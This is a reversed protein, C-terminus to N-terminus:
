EVALTCGILGDIASRLQQSIASPTVEFHEALERQSAGRPVQFYGLRKAAVLLQRQEYSLTTANPADAGDLDGLFDVAVSVDAAECQRNLERLRERSRLHMRVTWGTMGGRCYRVYGGLRGVLRLVDVADTATRVRYITEAEFRTICSREAVTPDAGLAAQVRRDDEDGSVSLYHGSDGREAAAQLDLRFAADPCATITPQLALDDGSFTIEADLRYTPDPDDIGGALRPQETAADRQPSSEGCNGTTM